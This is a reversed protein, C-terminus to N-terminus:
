DPAKRKPKPLPRYPPKAPKKTTPDNPNHLANHTHLSPTNDVKGEPKNAPKQRKDAQRGAYSPAWSRPQNMKIELRNGLM